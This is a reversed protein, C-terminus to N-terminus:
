YRRSRKSKVKKLKKRTFRGGDIKGRMNEVVKAGPVFEQEIIEQGANKAAIYEAEANKALQIEHAVRQKRKANNENVNIKNFKPSVSREKNLMNQYKLDVRSIFERFEKTDPVSYPNENMYKHFEKNYLVGLREAEEIHKEDFLIQITVFIKLPYTGFMEPPASPVLQNNPLPSSHDLDLEHIFPSRFKEAEGISDLVEAKRQIHLKRANESLIGTLGNNVTVLQRRNKKLVSRQTYNNLELLDENIYRCILNYYIGKGLKKFLESQKIITIKKIDENNVIENITTLNNRTIIDAMEGLPPYIAANYLSLFDERGPQTKELVKNIEQYIKLNSFRMPTKVFEVIGSNQLKIINGEDWISRLSYYFDPYEDGERYIALSNNVPMHSNITQYVYNYNTIPDLFNQKNNSNIIGVLSGSRTYNVEGSHVQAVIICGPPVIKKESEEGGHGIILFANKPANEGMQRNPDLSKQARLAASGSKLIDHAFPEISKRLFVAKEIETKERSNTTSTKKPIPQRYVRLIDHQESKTPIYNKERLKLITRPLYNKLCYSFIMNNFQINNIKSIDVHELLLLVIDEGKPGYINPSCFAVSTLLLSTDASVWNPDEGAELLAKIRNVKEKIPEQRNNRIIDAIKNGSM